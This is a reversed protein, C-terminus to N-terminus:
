GGKEGSGGRAHLMYLDRRRLDLLPMARRALELVGPDLEAELIRAGFGADAVVIGYPNVILSRGTFREGYLVAGVLYSVNEHARAQALFRYAEEKGPGRYWASPVVFVEAGQEAQLRFLEPYRLEFCVSVGIMAGCLRAPSPLSPGPLMKDSERYGLVDFLHTKRYVGVMEGAENIMVITNYVKPPQPSPEFLTGVICSGKEKATKRLASVWSGEVPESAAYLEEPGLDTPDLMAYEPLVILDGRARKIMKEIRRKMTDKDPAAELQLVSVLIREM